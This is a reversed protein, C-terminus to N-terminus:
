VRRRTLAVLLLPLLLDLPLEGLRNGRGFGAFGPLTKRACSASGSDAPGTGPNILFTATVGGVTLQARQNTAAITRVEIQDGSQATGEANTYAGGNVSYEGGVITVFTPTDIGAITVPSSYEMSGNIVNSRTGLSFVDPRLDGDALTATLTYPLAQQIFNVMVLHWTGPAPNEITIAENGDLRGSVQTTPDQCDVTSGSTCFYGATTEPNIGVTISYKPPTGYKAILDVDKRGDTSTRLVLTRNGVGPAPVDVHWAHFEDYLDDAFGQVVAVGPVLTGIEAIYSRTASYGGAATLTLSFPIYRHGSSGPAVSISFTATADSGGLLTGVNVPGSNVTIDSGADLTAVVNGATQWLNRLSFEVELAEGPDLAGNGDGNLFAVGRLVLSPRSTMELAKDADVRGGATRLTPNAGGVASGSEILRAKIELYGPTPAVHSRLLAAVGAVYPSAFSTGAVGPSTAYGGNSQTTVIQLGPAAVDTTIPGYQSFSAIDDQRNTAAVAVINEVEYNAPYNLQGLDTNSDDNGAAAVYLIDAAALDAIADREAQSYGPGGFSANIINAGHERAYRLAAIHSAVDFGFRLPMLGANWAVGAVGIGNNGIGVACGAVLTGHFDNSNVPSPDSDDCAFDHGPVVNAALDAHGVNVSDDIVAVVVSRLGVRDPVGDGNADWAEALNLDGGAIGSPGGLVFNDQGTNRLGWQQGFLPDNPIVTRPRRLFNPEAYEVSPDARLLALAGPLDLYAPLLLHETHLAPFSRLSKLGLDRRSKALTAAQRYRVLVEGEVYPATPFVPREALAPQALLATLVAIPLSKM